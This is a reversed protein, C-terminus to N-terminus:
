QYKEPLAETGFDSHFACFFDHTTWGGNNVIMDGAVGDNEGLRKYIDNYEVGTLSVICKQYDPIELEIPPKKDSWWKCSACSKKM